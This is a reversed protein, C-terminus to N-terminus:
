WEPLQRPVSRGRRRPPRASGSLQSPEADLRAQAALRIPADAAGYGDYDGLRQVLEFFVGGVRRTYFHLFEGDADRDYMVQHARLSRLFTDTLGFRAELDDYYNRPVPLPRMGRRQARRAVALVDDCALAVHETHQDGAAPLVNLPVRVVGDPTRLVRSRVLGHLSAVETSTGKQLGLVGTCFHVTEDYTEWPSMLNLHDVAYVGAEGAEADEDQPVGHEFEDIWGPRGTADSEGAALFLEVGQPSVFAPLRHEGAQIRRTVPPVGLTSIREEAADIDPYLLGMGAVHPREGRAHQENLIIRAGGASWLRVPKSRHQGRFSLGLQELVEEVDTTNEARVEVFDVGVPHGAAPVTPLAEAGAQERATRDALAVLTRHAQAATAGSATQRFIDNFVELSIPGSYGSRVVHGLFTVLDFDGEGPFLRHHRSWSLVDLSLAPADALQVFFIKEAPIDEIGAPDHGRSLIHFSDLCTGVAPHDALEVIRWARRYDDVFRGWALAEFAVRVGHASALEGLRRLQAASVEDSDETATSVNSCVLVTGIGLRAMIRFRAEARRLNDELLEESVGEFDRFPQYLDLALGLREARARVEEPTLESAVLDPEFIEVGSFGAEAAAEMKEELSGSLCVTAISTHM